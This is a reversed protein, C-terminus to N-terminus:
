APKTAAHHGRRDAGAEGVSRTENGQADVWEMSLVDHEVLRKLLAEGLASAPTWFGGGVEIDDQALSLAAEAM